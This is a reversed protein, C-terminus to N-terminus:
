SGPMLAPLEGEEHLSTCHETDYAPEPHESGVVDTEGPRCGGDEPVDSSQLTLLSLPGPRLHPAEIVPNM